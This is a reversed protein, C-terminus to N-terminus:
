DRPAARECASLAKAMHKAVARESLGLGAAIEVFTRGHIRNLLFILRTRSPLATLAREVADLEERSAVADFPTPPSPAIQLDALARVTDRRVAEARVHDIAANRAVRNLYAPTLRAADVAKEWLRLFADQMVDRASAGHGLRRRIVRELQDSHQAYLRGFAEARGSVDSGM